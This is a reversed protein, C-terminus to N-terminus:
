NRSFEFLVKIELYSLIAFIILIKFIFIYYYFYNLNKKIELRNM